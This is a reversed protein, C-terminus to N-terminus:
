ALRCHASRMVQAFYRSGPEQLDAMMTKFAHAARHRTAPRPLLEDPVEPDLLAFQRFSHAATARILFAEPDSISTTASWKRGHPNSCRSFQDAFQQYRDCLGDLDWAQEVIRSVALDGPSTGVLVAVQGHVGLATAVARLEAERTNPSLWIADQIPRFGLFRLRRGLRNREIPQTDPITNVAITWSGDWSPREGLSFLRRDGEALADACRETITYYTHRGSRTRHLLDRAVLRHLAARAALNSYGADALLRVLGGSWLEHEFQRGFIALLTMVFEQSDGHDSAISM